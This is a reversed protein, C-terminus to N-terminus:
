ARCPSRSISTSRPMRGMAALLVQDRQAPDSPLDSELFYPGRSTGGRMLVCPVRKWRARPSTKPASQAGSPAKIQDDM